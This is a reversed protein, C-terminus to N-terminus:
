YMANLGVQAQPTFAPQPLPIHSVRPAIDCPLTHEVIEGLRKLVNQKIGGLALDGLCPLQHFGASLAM